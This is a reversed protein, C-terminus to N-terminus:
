GDPIRSTRGEAPMSSSRWHKDQSGDDDKTKRCIKEISGNDIIQAVDRGVLDVPECVLEVHLEEKEYVGTHVGESRDLRAEEKASLLYCIGEVFSRSDAVVNAYGRENPRGDCQSSDRIRDTPERSM